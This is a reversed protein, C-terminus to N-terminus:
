GDGDQSTLRKKRVLCNGAALLLQRRLESDEIGAAAKELEPSIAAEAARRLEYEDSPGSRRRSGIVAAENIEFDIFNVV